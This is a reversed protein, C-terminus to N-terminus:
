RGRLAKPAKSKRQIPRVRFIYYLLFAASLNFVVYVWFLGFNRWRDSWSISRTALYQDANQLPCYNCLTTAGPNLLQGPAEALYAAMYKGCTIGYPPNFVSIETASCTVNRAHLGTSAIGSVLYTLPSVRYLFIWFGPLADPPLLVGNFTLCLSFMLTCITGATQADPLGAILLQGFSSAFIFFEICYLLMLGGRETSQVGFVAFYYCAWVLCGLFVQYPLEALMNSILFAQWTYTRSPRERLEYLSRQIVFHSIVQQVLSPFIAMLMFISFLVNQM